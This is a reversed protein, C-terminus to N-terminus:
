RILDSLIKLHMCSNSRWCEKGMLECQCWDLRLASVDKFARCLVRNESDSPWNNASIKALRDEREM